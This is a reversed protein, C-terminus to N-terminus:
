IFIGTSLAAAAFIVEPITVDHVTDIIAKLNAVSRTEFVYEEEIVLEVFVVRKLSRSAVCM